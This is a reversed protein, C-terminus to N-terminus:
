RAAAGARLRAGLFELIERRAPRAAPVVGPISIFKHVANPYATFRADNGADRLREVYERGHDYVPDLEGAVALAPPLGHLDATALPSVLDPDFGAPLAIRRALRLEGASLGPRGINRAVSPHDTMTATWDLAAYVLVQASVAPGTERSRLALLAALAGGASEGVVAIRAPDIGWGSPDGALLDLTDCADEVPAPLPHEPALRYEVAVVVAPLRAALRSNLWDNQAATGTIFGGGHFSLVLPLREHPGKPRHVRLTLRRGPLEVTREEIGARRDPLGAVIRMAPSRLLRVLKARGAIVEDATVSEWDPRDKLLLRAGIPAKTTM